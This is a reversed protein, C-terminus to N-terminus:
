VRMVFSTDYWKEVRCLRRGQPHYGDDLIYAVIDTMMMTHQFVSFGTLPACSATQRDDVSTPLVRAM